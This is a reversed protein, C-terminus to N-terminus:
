RRGYGKVEKILTEGCRPCYENKQSRVIPVRINSLALNSFVEGYQGTFVDTFLVHGFIHCIFKPIM